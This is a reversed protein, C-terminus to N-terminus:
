PQSGRATRERLVTCRNRVKPGRGDGCVEPACQDPGDPGGGWCVYGEEVTCESSCGDGDLTNADDCYTVHSDWADLGPRVPPALERSSLRGDGCVGDAQVNVQEGGEAANESM